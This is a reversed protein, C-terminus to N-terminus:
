RSAVCGTSRRIDASCACVCAVDFPRKTCLRSVVPVAFMGAHRGRSRPLVSGLTVSPMRVGGAFRRHSGAGIVHARPARTCAGARVAWLPLACITITTIRTYELSFHRMSGASPNTVSVWGQAAALRCACPACSSSHWVSPGCGSRAREGAAHVAHAQRVKVSVSTGRCALIAVSYQDRYPIVADVDATGTLEFRQHSPPPRWTVRVRM